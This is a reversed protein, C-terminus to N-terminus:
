VVDQLLLVLGGLVALNAFLGNQMGIRKVPDDVEWFRLLLASAAVTFVILCLVGFGPYWDLLVLASGIFELAIGTWFTATPLPTKFITLRHIHDEIQHKQLNRLGTIVFLAVILLRGVTDLWSADTVYLGPM